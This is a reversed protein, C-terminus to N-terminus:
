CHAHPRVKKYAETAQRLALLASAELEYEINLQGLAEPEHDVGVSRNFRVSDGQRRAYERSAHWLANARKWWAEDDGDPHLRAGCKEYAVSMELLARDCHDVQAYAARQEEDSAEREVLRAVREHQRCCEVAARYLADAKACLTTATAAGNGAGRPPGDGGGGDGGRTPHQTSKAM